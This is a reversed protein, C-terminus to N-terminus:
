AVLYAQPDALFQKKCAPACFAITQGEFEVTHRSAAPDVEM